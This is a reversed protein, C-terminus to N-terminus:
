IQLAGSEEVVFGSLTFEADDYRCISLMWTKRCM